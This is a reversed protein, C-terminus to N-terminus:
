KSVNVQSQLDEIERQVSDREAAFQGDLISALKKHYGEV